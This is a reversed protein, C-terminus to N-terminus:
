VQLSCGDDWKSGREVEIIAEEGNPGDVMSDIAMESDCSMENSPLDVGM